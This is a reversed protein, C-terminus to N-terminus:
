LVRKLNWMWAETEEHAVLLVKMLKLLNGYIEGALSQGFGVFKTEDYIHFSTRM